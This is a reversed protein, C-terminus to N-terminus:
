FYCVANNGNHRILINVFHQDNQLQLGDPKSHTLLLYLIKFFNTMFNSNNTTDEAPVDSLKIENEKKCNTKFKKDFLWYLLAPTQKVM